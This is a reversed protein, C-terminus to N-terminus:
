FLLKIDPRLIVNKRKKIMGSQAQELHKSAMTCANALRDNFTTVYSLLDM